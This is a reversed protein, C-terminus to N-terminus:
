DKRHSRATDECLTRLDPEIWERKAVDSMVRDRTYYDFLTDKPFANITRNVREVLPIASSEVALSQKLLKIWFRTITEHYGQKGHHASFTQLRTRMRILAEESSLTSLYWCAVTLHYAHTFEQPAYECREFKRVVEQISEDNEYAAGAM